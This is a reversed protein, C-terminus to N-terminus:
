EVTVALEKIILSPSGIYGPAVFSMAFELDSGFDEVQNLLEFFNGAITMQNVSTEIKGNKIYFGSAAVSFDGSVSNAGSHLGSLDTILVGEEISAVLEEFSKESPQIFLNTPAVTLTGKYSAKYGHGTSQVGEKKATKQNHLLTVLKGEEVVVRKSTAVGESDFTRSLLGEKLTPDDVITLTSVAIGEGVKDKLLSEGKQTREASFIPSFTNFLSGAADHRLLVRYNKSDISKAGLQSLAEEVAQKAIEQPNLSEFDKTFKSYAGNKIEDGQKVVVSVYLGLYNQKEQLSLGKSNLLARETEASSLQFYDTGTVREDYEYIYKEIEKLLNMKEPISVERLPESYFTGEEYSESGAFIEENEEEVIQSNEKANELLFQISEEDLKESFSNGMKGNFVGRFAVGFVESTDYSDIEGKYLECGFKEEREYALEMDTFGHEQGAKFLLDKFELLNM